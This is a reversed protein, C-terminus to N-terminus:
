STMVLRLRPNSIPSCRLILPLVGNFTKIYTVMFRCVFRVPGIKQGKPGQSYQLLLIYCDCAREVIAVVVIVAVHM